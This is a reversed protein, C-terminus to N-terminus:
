RKLSQQGVNRKPNNFSHRGWAAESRGASLLQPRRARKKDTMSVIFRSRVREIGWYVTQAMGSVAKARVFANEIRKRTSWL